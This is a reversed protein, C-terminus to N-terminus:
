KPYFINKKKMNTRLNPLRVQLNRYTHQRVNFHHVNLPKDMVTGNGRRKEFLFVSGNNNSIIESTDVPITHIISKYENLMTDYEMKPTTEVEFKVCLFDM